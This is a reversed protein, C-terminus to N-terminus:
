PREAQAPALGLVERAAAAIKEVTPEVFAELPPSFPVPVDPRAVRRPPAKLAGWAREAITAALESAIGCRLNAEDAVVVRGTKHVSAILTDEDLPVLTQPDIVESSIGDAALLDAAKLAKQVMYSTAVITLDTGERVIAAKGFPISYLEEPVHGRVDALRLHDAFVVPNDDDVASKLLGKVAYPSSPLAIKLGPANWLMAQPSSSHQAGGAGRMGHMFYFVVPANVRGNSMYSIMAAENVVQPWAEYIFSATYIGVISREGVLSAGIGLGTVGLEAIPPVMFQDPFKEPLKSPPNFPASLDGGIVFVREDAALIQAVAEARAEHYALERM